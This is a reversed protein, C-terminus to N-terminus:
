LDATKFNLVGALTALMSIVICVILTQIINESVYYEPVLFAVSLHQPLYNAITSFMQYISGLVLFIASSIPSFLICIPMAGGINKVIFSLMIFINVLAFNIITQMGIFNFFYSVNERISAVDGIILAGISVTLFVGTCVFLLVILGMTIIKSLYINVRHHGQLITKITGLRFENTVLLCSIISFFLWFIGGNFIISALKITSDVTLENKDAETVVDISPFFKILFISAFIIGGSFLSYCLPFYNSKVLKFMEGRLLSLMHIGERGDTM